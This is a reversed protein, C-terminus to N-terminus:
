ELGAQSRLISTTTWASRSWRGVCVHEEEQRAIRVAEAELLISLRSQIPLHMGEYVSSSCRLVLHSVQLEKSIPVGSAGTGGASIRYQWRLGVLVVVKVYYVVSRITEFAAGSTTMFFTHESAANLAM